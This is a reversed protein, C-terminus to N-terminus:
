NDIIKKLHRQKLNNIITHFNINHDNLLVLMHYILDSAEDILENKNNTVSALSLEIAEESVKQAIRKTGSTFLQSTYSNINRLIKKENILKELYFLFLFPLKHSDSFCSNQDLHCTNGKPNVLLLITDHDCDIKIDIVLLTNNSKEGKTWLRKKTRSYFTVLKEKITQRLALLNMYGHMLVEGSIYNQVIVPILGSTKDWDLKSIAVDLLM